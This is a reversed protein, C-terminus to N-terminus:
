WPSDAIQGEILASYSLTPLSIKWDPYQRPNAQELSVHLLFLITSSQQLYSNFTKLASDMADTYYVDDISFIQLIDCPDHRHCSRFAKELISWCIMLLTVPCLKSNYHFYLPYNCQLSFGRSDPIGIILDPSPHLTQTRFWCPVRTSSPPLLWWGAPHHLLYQPTPQPSPVVISM